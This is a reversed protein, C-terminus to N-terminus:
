EKLAGAVVEAAPANRSDVTGTRGMRAGKARPATATNGEVVAGAVDPRATAETDRGTFACVADDQECASWHALLLAGVLGIALSLLYARIGNRHNM